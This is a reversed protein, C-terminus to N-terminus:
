DVVLRLEHPRHTRVFRLGMEGAQEILCLVALHDRDGPVSLNHRPDHGRLIYSGIGPLCNSPQSASSGAQPQISIDSLQDLM